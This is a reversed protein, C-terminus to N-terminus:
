EGEVGRLFAYIERAVSLLLDSSYTGSTRLAAELAKARMERDADAEARERQKVFEPTYNEYLAWELPDFAGCDCRGVPLAPANHVACDSAHTM